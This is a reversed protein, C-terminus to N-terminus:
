NGGNGEVEVKWDDFDDGRGEGMAFFCCVEQQETVPSHIDKFSHLNARTEMHELRIVDGHKITKGLKCNFYDTNSHPGKVIWYANQDSPNLHGCYVEQQRSGGIHQYRKHHSHLYLQTSVHRLKLLSM